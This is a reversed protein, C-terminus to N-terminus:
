SFFEETCPLYRKGKPFEHYQEEMSAFQHEITLYEKIKEQKFLQIFRLKYSVHIIIIKQFCLYLSLQFLYLFGNINIHL